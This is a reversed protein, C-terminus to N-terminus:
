PTVYLGNVIVLYKEIKKNYGIVTFTTDIHIDNYVDVVPHVRVKGEYRSEMFSRFIKYCGWSGSISILFIIDLGIKLLNAAEGYIM